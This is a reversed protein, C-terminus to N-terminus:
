KSIKKKLNIRQVKTHVNQIKGDGPDYEVTCRCYNHRRYVDKPVDPYSYEGALARCWDCCGGSLKRVIKPQLGSKAHFEANERIADDVISQTFNKVPEQLIWSIDNFDDAVSIRNVIGDIRDQNLKPVIAKIGIKAKENLLGQIMSTIGTVLVYNNKMTPVIIRKAINYYMRGDPLTDSSLVNHYSKSLITGIEIAYANADAYTAKEDGIMVMVEAIIDSVSCMNEFEKKIMEMLDPASDEM